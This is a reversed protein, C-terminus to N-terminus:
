PLPRGAASVVQAAELESGPAGVASVRGGCVAVWGGPIEWEGDVVLLLADKVLLDVRRDVSM